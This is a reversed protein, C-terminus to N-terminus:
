ICATGESYGFSFGIDPVPCDVNPTLAMNAILDGFGIDNGNQLTYDKVGVWYTYGGEQWTRVTTWDNVRTVTVGESAFRLYCYVPGDYRYGPEAVFDGNAQYRCDQRGEEPFQHEYDGSVNLNYFHSRGSCAMYIIENIDTVLEAKVEPRSYKKM